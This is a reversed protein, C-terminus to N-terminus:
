SPKRRQLTALVIERLDRLRYPKQLFGDPAPAGPDPDSAQDFGSSLIVPVGPDVGRMAKFALHGNMRPMTLDMVVLSLRGHERKFLELAEVGDEAELITEFGLAKLSEVVGSRVDPEDDVVLIAGEANFTAAARAEQEEAKAGAKAPLFVHFATGHGLESQIRIGAHHGRLIGLMASLGLGRGKPKTTFFPEFIRAQTEADMGCGSDAIELAVHPGPEMAQAPFDRAIAAEDLEVLGTTLRIVGDRDGIADAANTVLNMVVQQLQAPDAELAPLSPNLHFRLSVTKPISVSLLHTMEEVTQNLDVLRTVFRGKGSYALMQRTLDAARQLSKELADLYPWSPSSPHSKLQALSLNGMMATLLNNFDHAIGGALVGLSELKQSQQLARETALRDTIDRALVLMFDRDGTRCISGTVEVDRPHGDAHRYVRRGIAASGLHQVQAINRDVAGREADVLDYITLSGMEASPYGLTHHFAENAQVIARTDLDVLFIMDLAQEVVARYREESERLAREASHRASIDRVTGIMRAVKGDPGALFVGHDEVPIYAGDKRRVRYETVLPQLTRLAQELKEAERTIDDPHRRAAWAEIRMAVGDELGIVAKMPGQWQVIGAAFDFDYILQGTQETVLRLLQERERIAQEMELRRTLDTFVSVFVPREGPELVQAHAEVEVDTGDGRRFTYDMSPVDEGQLMRGMRGKIESWHKPHIFELIPLGLTREPDTRTIAAAAPNSYGILGDQYTVLGQPLMEVLRRFRAESQKHAELALRHETIDIFSAVAGAIHGSSDRRPAARISLWRREGDARIVELEYAGQEGALRQKLEAGHQGRSEPAVLELTTRGLLADPDMGFIQGCAANVFLFRADEDLIAVGEALTDVLGGYTEQAEQLAMWAMKREFADKATVFRCDQGQYSIERAEVDVVFVEGDKTWHKLEGQSLRYAPSDELLALLKPREEPPRIDLMTMALFEDKTWGYRRVAAANAALIALGAKAYIWAPDPLHDFLEQFDSGRSEAGSPPGQRPTEPRKRM